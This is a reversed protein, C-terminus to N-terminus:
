EAEGACVVLAQRVDLTKEYVARGAIVGEIASGKAVLARIDDISSVGGSAVVPFGAVQALNAYLDADIGTQMGDNRIDTYVLHHLGMSNLRPQRRM